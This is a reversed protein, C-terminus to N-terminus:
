KQTASQWLASVRQALTMPEFPKPIVGVVGLSELEAVEHKQLKATMFVVPISSLEPDKQLEALTQPGDMEPMMVDLLIIQPRAKRVLRLAEIGSSAITVQLGGVVELSMKVITQISPDDEVLMVHQLGNSM